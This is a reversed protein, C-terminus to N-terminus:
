RVPERRLGELLFDGSSARIHRLDGIKPKTAGFNVTEFVTEASNGGVLTRIGGGGNNYLGFRADEHPTRRKRAENIRRWQWRQVPSSSRELFPNLTVPSDSTDLQYRQPVKWM